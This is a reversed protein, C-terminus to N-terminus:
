TTRMNSMCCYTPVYEIFTMNLFSISFLRELTPSQTQNWLAPFLSPIPITEKAPLSETPTRGIAREYQEEDTGQFFREKLMAVLHARLIIGRLNRRKMDNVVPFGNHHHMPDQLIALIEKVKVVVPLMQVNKNMAHYCRIKRMTLTPEDELYPYHKAEIQRDFLPLGGFTDAVLKSIALTAMIPLLFNFTNSVELMVVAMGVAMRTVGGIFGVVGFIAYAGVNIDLDPYNYALIHGYGRGLSGGIVFMPIFIGHATHCGAICACMVLAVVGYCCVIGEHLGNSVGTKMFLQKVQDDLPSLILSSMPNWGEDCWLTSPREWNHYGHEIPECDFFRPLTFLVCSAVVALLVVEGVKRLRHWRLSTPNILKARYMTNVKINILTFLIGFLGQVVGLPVVFILQNIEWTGSEVHFIGSYEGGEMFQLVTYSALAALFAYWQHRRSLSCIEEMAFLLGGIPAGFAAGVGAAVGLTMCVKRFGLFNEFKICCRM